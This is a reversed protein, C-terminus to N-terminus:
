PCGPITVYYTLHWVTNICIKKYTNCPSWVSHCLWQLLCGRLLADHGKRSASRWWKCAPWHKERPTGRCDPGEKCIDKGASSFLNFCLLDAPIWILIHFLFFMVVNRQMSWQNGKPLLSHCAPPCLIGAMPVKPPLWPRQGYRPPLASGTGRPLIYSMCASTIDLHYHVAWIRPQRAAECLFPKRGLLCSWAVRTVLMSGEWSLSMDPM